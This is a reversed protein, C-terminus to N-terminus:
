RIRHWMTLAYVTIAATTVHMFELTVIMAAPASIITLPLFFSVGLVGLAVTRFIPYPRRTLRNLLAAVAVGALVCFLTTTVVAFLTVPQNPRVVVTQPMAGVTSAGLYIITNTIVAGVAATFGAILLSPQMISKSRMPPVLPLPM